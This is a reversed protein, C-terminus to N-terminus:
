VIDMTLISQPLLQLWRQTGLPEQTYALSLTSVVAASALIFDWRWRGVFQWNSVIRLGYFFVGLAAETWSVALILAGVSEGM